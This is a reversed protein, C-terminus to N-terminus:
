PEGLVKAKLNNFGIGIGTQVLDCPIVAQKDIGVILNLKAAIDVKGADSTLPKAESILRAFPM